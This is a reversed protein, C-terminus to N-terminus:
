GVAMDVTAKDALAGEEEEEMLRTTHKPCGALLHQVGAVGQEAGMAVPTAGMAVM